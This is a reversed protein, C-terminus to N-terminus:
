KVENKVGLHVNMTLDFRNGGVINATMLLLAWFCSTLTLLSFLKYAFECTSVMYIYLIPIYSYICMHTYICFRENRLM